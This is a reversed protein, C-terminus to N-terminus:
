FVDIMKVFRFRQIFFVAARNKMQRMRALQTGTVGMGTVSVGLIVTLGVVPVGAVKVGVSDGAVTVEDGVAVKV